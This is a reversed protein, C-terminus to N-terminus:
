HEKMFELNMFDMQEGLEHARRGCSLSEYTTVCM